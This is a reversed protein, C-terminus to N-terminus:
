KPQMNAGNDRKTRIVQDLTAHHSGDGTLAPSAANIAKIAGFANGENCPIQVLGGIPDCTMGLHHEIGMEAANEIQRSSGGLAATLGRRRWPAHWVWRVRADSKLAPSRRM